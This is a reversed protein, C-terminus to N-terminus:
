LLSQSSVNKGLFLLCLSSAPLVMFRLAKLVLEVRQPLLMCIHSVLPENEKLGDCEVGQGECVQLWIMSCFANLECKCTRM